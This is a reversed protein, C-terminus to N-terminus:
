NKLAEVVKRSVWDSAGFEKRIAPRGPVEGGREQLIAIIEDKSKTTAPTENTYGVPASKIEEVLEPVKLFAEEVDEVIAITINPTDELIELGELDEVQPTEQQPTSVVHTNSAFLLDFVVREGLVTAVQPIVAVIAGVPGAVTFGVFANMTSSAGVGGLFATKSSTSPFMLTIGLGLVALTDIILAIIIASSGLKGFMAAFAVLTGFSVVFGAVMIGVLVVTAVLKIWFTQRPTLNLSRKEALKKARRKERWENFKFM